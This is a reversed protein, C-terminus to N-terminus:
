DNVEALQERDLDKEQKETEFMEDVAKQLEGNWYGHPEAKEHARIGHYLWFIVRGIDHQLETDLKYRRERREQEQKKKELAEKLASELFFKLIISACGTSALVSVAVTLVTNM